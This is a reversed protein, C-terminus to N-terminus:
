QPKQELVGNNIYGVIQYTQGDDNMKVALAQNPMSKPLHVALEQSSEQVHRMRCIRATCAKKKTGKGGFRPKDACAVCQGCDDRMCGECEGCRRNKTARVSSGYVAVMNHKARTKKDVADATKRPGRNGKVRSRIAQEKRHKQKFALQSMIMDVQETITLNKNATFDLGASNIKGTKLKAKSLSELYLAKADDRQKRGEDTNM